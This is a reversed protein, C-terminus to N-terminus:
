SLRDAISSGWLPEDGVQEIWQRWWNLIPTDAGYDGGSGLLLVTGMIRRFSEEVNLYAAVAWHLAM